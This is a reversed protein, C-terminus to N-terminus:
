SGQLKTQYSSLSLIIILTLAMLLISIITSVFYRLCREGLSTNLNEWNIIDPAKAKKVQLWQGMFRYDIHVM